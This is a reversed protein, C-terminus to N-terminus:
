GSVTLLGRIKTELESLSKEASPDLLHIMLTNGKRSEVCATGPLLSVIFIFTYIEELKMDSTFEITQPDIPLSPSFARRAVDWGGQLSHWLFWPVMRLLPGIRVQWRGPPQIRLSIFAVGLVILGILWPERWQGEALCWWIFTLGAVRQFVAIPPYVPSPQASNTFHVTM